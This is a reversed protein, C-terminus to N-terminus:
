FWDPAEEVEEKTVKIGMGDLEGEIRETFEDLSEVKENIRDVWDPHSQYPRNFEEDYDPCSSPDPMFRCSQGKGICMGLAINLFRCNNIVGQKGM